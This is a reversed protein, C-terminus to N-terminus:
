PCCMGIKRSTPVPGPGVNLVTRAASIAEHVYAAIRPDTRRQRAYGRGHTTYDVDGAPTREM